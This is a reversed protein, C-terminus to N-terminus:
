VDIKRYCKTKTSWLEDIAADAANPRKQALEGLREQLM